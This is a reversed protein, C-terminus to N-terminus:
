VVIVPFRRRRRQGAAGRSRRAANGRPRNGNRIMFRFWRGATCGGATRGPRSGPRRDAPLHERAQALLQVAQDGGPVVAGPLRVRDHVGVQAPRAAPGARGCAVASCIWARM